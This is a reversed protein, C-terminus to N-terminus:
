WHILWFVKVGDAALKWMVLDDSGMWCSGGWWLSWQVAMGVHGLPHQLHLSGPWKLLSQVFGWTLLGAWILFISNQNSLWSKQWSKLVCYKLLLSSLSKESFSKFMKFFGWVEYFVSHLRFHWKIDRKNKKYLIWKINSNLFRQQCIVSNDAVRETQM